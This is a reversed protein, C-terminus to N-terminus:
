FLFCFLFLGKFFDFILVFVFIFFWFLCKYLLFSFLCYFFVFAFMLFIFVFVFMSFFFPKHGKQAVMYMYRNQLWNQIIKIQTSYIALCKISFLRLM